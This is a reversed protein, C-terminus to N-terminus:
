LRYAKAPYGLGGKEWVINLEKDVEIVRSHGGDAILTNGNQLRVASYPLKILDPTVQWITEGAKDLEVIRSEGRISILTNGNGLRQCYVPGMRNFIKPIEPGLNEVGWIEKKAPTVEFVRKTGGDAILTNGNKLRQAKWPWHLNEVSWVGKGKADFERVFGPLQDDWGAVLIHNDALLELSCAYGGVPREGIKKGTQTVEWVSRERIINVLYNGNPTQAVDYPMKLTTIEWTIQGQEDVIMVHGPPEDANGVVLGPIEDVILTLKGNLSM